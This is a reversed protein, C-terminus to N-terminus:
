QAWSQSWVCSHSVSLPVDVQGERLDGGGTLVKAQHSPKACECDVDLRQLHFQCLTGFHRGVVIQRRPFVWFFIYLIWIVAFTQFRSFVYHEYNESHRSEKEHLRKGRDFNSFPTSEKGGGGSSIHLAYTYTYCASWWEASRGRRWTSLLAFCVQQLYKWKQQSWLAQWWAATKKLCPVLVIQMEGRTATSRTSFCRWCGGVQWLYHEGVLLSIYM